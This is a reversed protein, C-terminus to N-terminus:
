SIAAGLNGAARRPGAGAPDGGLDHDRHRRTALASLGAAVLYRNM